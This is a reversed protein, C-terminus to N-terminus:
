SAPVVASAQNSHVSEVGASDVATVVYYYTSGSSVTTDTYTLGSVESASLLSFSGGSTASRYVRYGVVQSTSANWNLVVSSSNSSPPTPSSGSVGDGSLNLTGPSSLNASLLTLTGSAVGAVTPKFWVQFTVTQNPGLSYGPSLDSYGFGKGSVTVGQLTLSVDGTNQLTVNQTSTSALSVNGFSLVSPSVMLNVFAKEGSGALSIAGLTNSANSSITLTAPSSGAATPSFTVTYSASSSTPISIPLNPGSFSYENSSLSLASIKLAANGTNSVTLTQTAKQGVVVSQFNLTSASVSIQAGATTQSQGSKANYSACGVGWLAVSLWVAASAFARTARSSSCDVFM